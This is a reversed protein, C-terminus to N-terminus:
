SIVSRGLHLEQAFLAFLEIAFSFFYNIAIKSRCKSDLLQITEFKQNSELEIAYM